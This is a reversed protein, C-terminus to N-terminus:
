FLTVEDGDRTGSKLSVTLEVMNPHTKQNDLISIVKKLSM